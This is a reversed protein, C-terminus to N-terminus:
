IDEESEEAVANKNDDESMEEDVDPEEVVEGKLANIERQRTPIYGEKLDDVFPSLHPPLAQGPKYPQTPL